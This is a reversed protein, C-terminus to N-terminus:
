MRVALVFFIPSIASFAGMPYSTVSNEATTSGCGEMKNSILVSNCLCFGSTHLLSSAATLQMPKQLSLILHASFSSPYLLTWVKTLEGWFIFGKHERQIRDEGWYICTSMLPLRYVLIAVYSNFEKNIPSRLGRIISINVHSILWSEKINGDEIVNCTHTNNVSQQWWLTVPSELLM